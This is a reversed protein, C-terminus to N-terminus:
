FKRDAIMKQYKKTQEENLLKLIEEDIEKTIEKVKEIKADKPIDQEAVGFIKEKNDNYIVTVAAEQFDDLNLKKDLQKVTAEIIDIKNKKADKNKTRPANRQRAISRDVGAGTNYPDHFQAQVETAGLLFIFVALINKITKM